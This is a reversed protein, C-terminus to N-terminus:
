ERGKSGERIEKMRMEQIYQEAVCKPCFHAFADIFYSDIKKGKAVKKLEEILIDNYREDIHGKPHLALGFSCNSMSYSPCVLWNKQYPEDCAFIVVRDGVNRDNFDEVRIFSKGDLYKKLSKNLYIIEDIKVDVIYYASKGNYYKQEVREVTGVITLNSINPSLVPHYWLMTMLHVVDKEEKDIEGAWSLTTILIVFLLFIIRRM